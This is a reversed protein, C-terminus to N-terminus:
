LPPTRLIPSGWTVMHGCWPNWSRVTAWFRCRHGAASDGSGSPLVRSTWWKAPCIPSHCQFFHPEQFCCTFWQAESNKWFDGTETIKKIVIEIWFRWTQNLRDTNQCRKINLINWFLNAVSAAWMCVHDIVELDSAGLGDGACHTAAGCRWQAAAPQHKKTVQM